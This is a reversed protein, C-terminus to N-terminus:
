NRLPDELLGLAHMRARRRVHFQCVLVMSAEMFADGNVQEVATYLLPDGLGEQVHIARYFQVQSQEVQAAVLPLGPLFLIPAPCVKVSVDYQRGTCCRLGVVFGGDRKSRADDRAMRLMEKLRELGPLTDAPTEM